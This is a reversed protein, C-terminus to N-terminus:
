LTKVLLISCNRHKNVITEKENKEDKTKKINTIVTRELMKMAMIVLFLM